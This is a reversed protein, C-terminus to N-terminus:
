ISRFLLIIEDSYLILKGFANFSFFSLRLPYDCEKTYDESLSFSSYSIRIIGIKLRRTFLSNTCLPLLLSIDM